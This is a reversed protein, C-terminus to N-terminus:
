DVPADRREFLRASDNQGFSSAAADANLNPFTNDSCAVVRRTM